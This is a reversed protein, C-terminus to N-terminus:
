MINLWYKGGYRGARTRDRQDWQCAQTQHELVKKILVSTAHEVIRCNIFCIQDALQRGERKLFIFFPVFETCPSQILNIYDITEQFLFKGSFKCKKDRIRM